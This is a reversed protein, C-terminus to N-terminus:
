KCANVTQTDLVQRDIFQTHLRYTPRYHLLPIDCITIIIYATSSYLIIKTTISYTGSYLAHPSCLM